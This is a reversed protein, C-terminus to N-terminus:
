EPNFIEEIATLFLQIENKTNYFQLSLLILDSVGLKNVGLHSCLLGSRVKINYNEDLLIAVDHSSFPSVNIPIFLNLPANKLTLHPIRSSLIRNSLLDSKIDLLYTEISKVSYQQLINMSEILSTVVVPNIKEFELAEINQETSVEFSSKQANIQTINKSSYLLPELQYNTKFFVQCYGPLTYLNYRTDIILIDIQLDHLTQLAQFDSFSADLININGMAKSIMLLKELPYRKTSILSESNLIMVGNSPLKHKYSEVDEIEWIDFLHLTSKTLKEHAILISHITNDDWISGILQNRHSISIISYLVQNLATERSTFLITSFEDLQLFKQFKFKCGNILAQNDISEKHISPSTTLPNHKLFESIERITRNPILTQSISDLYIRNQIQDQFLDRFNMRVCLDTTQM